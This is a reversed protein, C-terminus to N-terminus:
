GCLCVIHGITFIIKLNQVRLKERGYLIGDTLNAVYVVVCVWVSLM